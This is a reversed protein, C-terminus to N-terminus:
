ITGKYLVITNKNFVIFLSGFEHIVKGRKDLGRLVWVSKGAKVGGVGYAGLGGGLGVFGFRYAGSIAVEL